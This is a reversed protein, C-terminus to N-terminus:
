PLILIAANRGLYGPQPQRGVVGRGLDNAGHGQLPQVYTVMNVPKGDVAEADMGCGHLRASV